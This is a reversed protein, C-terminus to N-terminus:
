QCYAIILRDKPLESIRTDVDVEPFSIAGEIHGEDYAEKARVDLIIPRKAPDDYLAKFEELPMRPVDSNPQAAANPDQTPITGAPSDSTGGPNTTTATNGGGLTGSSLLYVVVM